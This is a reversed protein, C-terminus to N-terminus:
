LALGMQRTREEQLRRYDPNLECGIVRRGLELAAEGTTGSGFFPDLVLGGPRSGALICPKILDPPYTAFHAGEYNAPSVTWVTRKNSGLAMQKEKTMQDWRDNFGDHRRGHGRQKDVRARLNEIIRSKTASADQVGVGLFDKTAKGNYGEEVQKILEASPPNRIAAADYYYSQAKSLLFIYEHARTPRDTVSEPMCNPKHWIIDSRLWWGDARLAFAVMWPIGVLDKPKLGPLPMRNPQTMPGVLGLYGHKGEHGGRSGHPAHGGGPAMRHPARGGEPAMRHPAHGGEPAMRHPAHGGEPAMRPAGAESGGNGDTGHGNAEKWREGREGGGPCNGVKGAGTAYSDGLNLWLTGDERLCRRVERFVAVLNAVYEEPSKEMGIQGAVGYDRLGWYPPSTVCCDVVGAEVEKLRERADGVLITM